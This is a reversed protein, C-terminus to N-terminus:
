KIHMKKGGQDKFRDMVSNRSIKVPEQFTMLAKVAINKRNKSKNEGNRQNFENTNESPGTSM